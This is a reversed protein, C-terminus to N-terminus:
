PKADWRQREQRLPADLDAKSRGLPPNEAMFKSLASSKRSTDKELGVKGLLLVFVPSDPKLDTVPETLRVCTGDFIGRVTLIASSMCVEKLGSM